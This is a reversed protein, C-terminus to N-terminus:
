LTPDERGLVGGFFWWRTPGGQFLLFTSPPDTDLLSGWGMDNVKHNGRFFQPGRQQLRLQGIAGKAPTYFPSLCVKDLRRAEDEHLLGVWLVVRVVVLVVFM